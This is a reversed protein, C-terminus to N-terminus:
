QRESNRSRPLDVRFPVWKEGDCVRVIDNYSSVFGRREPRCGNRRWLAYGVLVFIAAFLLWGCVNFLFNRTKM